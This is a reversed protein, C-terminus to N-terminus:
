QLTIPPVENTAAKQVIFSIKSTDKNAYRGNLRYGSPPEMPRKPPNPWVVTVAYTGAPAGDGTRNTTLSFRGADDTMGTFRLDPYESGAPHFQVLAGAAPKGDAATVIGTVPYPTPKGGGCGVVFLLAASAVLARFM